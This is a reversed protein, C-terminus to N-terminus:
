KSAYEVTKDSSSCLSDEWPLQTDAPASAAPDHVRGGKPHLWVATVRCGSDRFFKQSFYSICTNSNKIVSPRQSPSSVKQQWTSGPPKMHAEPSLTFPTGEEDVATDPCGSSESLLPFLHVPLSSQDAGTFTQVNTTFGLHPSNWMGMYQQQQEWPNPVPVILQAKALM